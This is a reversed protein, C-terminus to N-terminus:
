HEDPIMTQQKLDEPLNAILRRHREREEKHEELPYGMRELQRNISYWLRSRTSALSALAYTKDGDLIHIEIMPEKNDM